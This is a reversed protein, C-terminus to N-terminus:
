SIRQDSAMACSNTLEGRGNGGCGEWMPTLVGHPPNLFILAAARFGIFMGWHLHQRRASRPRSPLGLSVQHIDFFVGFARAAEDLRRLRERQAVAMLLKRRQM